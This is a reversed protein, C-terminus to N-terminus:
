IRYSENPECPGCCCYQKPEGYGFGLGSFVHREQGYPCEYDCSGFQNKGNEDLCPVAFEQSPNYNDYKPASDYKDVYPLSEVETEIEEYYAETTTEEEVTEEEMEIIKGMVEDTEETETTTPPQTTSTTTGPKSYSLKTRM